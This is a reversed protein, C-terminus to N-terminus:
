DRLRRAKSRLRAIEAHLLTNEQRVHSLRWWLWGALLALLVNLALRIMQLERWRGCVEVLQVRLRHEAANTPPAAYLMEKYAKALAM